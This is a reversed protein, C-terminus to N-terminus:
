PMGKSGLSRGRSVVASIHDTNSGRTLTSFPFMWNQLSIALSSSRSWIAFSTPPFGQDLRVFSDRADAIMGPSSSIVAMRKPGKDYGLNM